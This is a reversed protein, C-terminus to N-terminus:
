PKNKQSLIPRVAVELEGESVMRFLGYDQSDRIILIRIAAM